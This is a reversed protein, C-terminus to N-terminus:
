PSGLRCLRATGRNLVGVERNPAVRASASAAGLLRGRQDVERRPRARDFPPPTPPATQLRALVRQPAEVTHPCTRGRNFEGRTSRRANGRTGPTQAPRADRAAPASRAVRRVSAPPRHAGVRRPPASLSTRVRSDLPPRRHFRGEEVVEHLLLLKEPPYQHGLTKLM